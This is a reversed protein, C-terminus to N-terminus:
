LISVCHSDRPFNLIKDLMKLVEDWFLHKRIKDILVKNNYNYDKTDPKILLIRLNQCPVYKILSIFTRTQYIHGENSEVYWTIWQFTIVINSVFYCCLLSM